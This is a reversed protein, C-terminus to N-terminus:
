QWAVIREARAADRDAKTKSPKWAAKRAAQAAAHNLGKGPDALKPPKVPKTKPEKAPASM